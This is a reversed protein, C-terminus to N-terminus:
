ARWIHSSRIELIEPLGRVELLAAPPSIGRSGRSLEEVWFRGAHGIYPAGLGGEPVESVGIKLNEM